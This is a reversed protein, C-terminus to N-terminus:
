SFVFLGLVMGNWVWHFAIPVGINWRHVSYVLFLGMLFAFILSGVNFQYVALHFLSFLFASLIMSVLPLSQHRELLDKFYRFLVVQFIITESCVVIVLQFVSTSLFYKAPIPEIGNFYWGLDHLVWFLCLFVIFTVGFGILINWINHKSQNRQSDLEVPIKEDLALFLGVGVLYVLTTMMWGTNWGQFLGEGNILLYYAFIGYLILFTIKELRRIRQFEYYYSTV